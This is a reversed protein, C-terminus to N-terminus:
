KRRILLEGAHSREVEFIFKTKEGKDHWERYAKLFGDHLKQEADLRVAVAEDYTDYIGLYFRRGKFGIDVRYRGADTRYVGRFGSKNDCRYKRKKLIEICTGDIIHLRSSIKKKKEAKLCGCSKYNGYVLNAQTVDITNGCDCKCHWIVSGHVDRKETPYLALLRTFKRGSLDVFNYSREYKMCGCSKVHGSKLDHASVIKEKGCKCRCLWCTRGKHSAAKYMVKLRGYVRGTLDDYRGM